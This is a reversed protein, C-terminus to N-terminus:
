TEPLSEPAGPLGHVDRLPVVAPQVRKGRPDRYRIYSNYYVLNYTTLYNCTVAPQVRKGWPDRYRSM